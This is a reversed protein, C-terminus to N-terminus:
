KEGIFIVHDNSTIFVGSNELPGQAVKEVVRNDLQMCCIIGSAVLELIVFEAHNGVGVISVPSANEDGLMWRQVNLKACVEPVSITDVLWGSRRV